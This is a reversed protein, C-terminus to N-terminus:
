NVYLDGDERMVADIPEPNDLVVLKINKKVVQIYAGDHEWMRVWAFVYRAERLAKIFQQQTM